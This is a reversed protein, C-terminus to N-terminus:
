GRAQVLLRERAELYFTQTSLLDELFKQVLEAEGVHDALRSLAYRQHGIRESYEDILRDLEGLQQSYRSCDFRSFM